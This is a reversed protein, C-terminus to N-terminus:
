GEVGELELSYIQRCILQGGIGERKFRLAHHGLVHVTYRRAYNVVGTAGSRIGGYARDHVEFHVLHTVEM